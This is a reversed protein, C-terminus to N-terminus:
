SLYNDRDKRLTEMERKINFQLTDLTNRIEFSKEKDLYEQRYICSAFENKIKRLDNIFDNYSTPILDIAEDLIDEVREYEKIATKVNRQNRDLLKIKDKIEELLSRVETLTEVLRYNKIIDLHKETKQANERARYWSIVAGIASIIGLVDAFFSLNNM